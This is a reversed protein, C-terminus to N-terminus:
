FIGSLRMLNPKHPINQLLKTHNLAKINSRKKFFQSKSGIGKDLMILTNRYAMLFAYFSKISYIKIHHKPKKLCVM